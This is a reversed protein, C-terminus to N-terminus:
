CVQEIHFAIDEKDPATYVATSNLSSHGLHNQVIARPDDATSNKMIRKALTHRMWHPSGNFGLKKCWMKFREQFQRISLGNGKQGMVLPADANQAFGMKKRVQLLETLAAKANKSLFTQKGHGRKAIDNREILYGSQIAARAEGVTLGEILGTKHGAKNKITKGSLIGIRIGTFRLLKMWALDRKALIHDTMNLLSFLSKEESETFYRDFEKRQTANAM